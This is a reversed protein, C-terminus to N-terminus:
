EAETGSGENRILGLEPPTLRRSYIRVDDIATNGSNIRQDQGIIGVNGNNPLGAMTYALNSSANHWFDFKGSGDYAVAMFTWAFASTGNTLPAYNAVGNYVNVRGDGSAAMYIAWGGSQSVIPMNYSTVPSANLYVWATLTFANTFIAMYSAPM